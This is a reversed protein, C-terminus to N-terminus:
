QSKRPKKSRLEAIAKEASAIRLKQVNRVLDPKEIDFGAEPRLEEVGEDTMQMLQFAHGIAHASFEHEEAYRMARRWLRDTAAVGKRRESLDDDELDNLCNTCFVKVGELLDILDDIKEKKQEIEKLYYLSIAGAITILSGLFSGFFRASDSRDFALGGVIAMAAAIGLALGFVFVWTYRSFLIQIFRSM